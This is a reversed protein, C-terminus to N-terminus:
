LDGQQPRIVIEEVCSRESLTCLTAIIRGVDEADALREPDVGLGDWSPSHTQGLIVSTVAVSTDQTAERLSQIYGNLAHKSVSYAGCRAQGKQATVSCIFVARAEAQNSLHPLLAQTLRIASLANVEFQERFEEITNELVAVPLFYGANNVLVGCNRESVRNVLEKLEASDTLDCCIIEPKMGGASECLRATEELGDQNRATLILPNPLSRALEVAISRGIGQSAGTILIGAVAAVAM